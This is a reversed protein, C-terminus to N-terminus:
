LWIACILYLAYYGTNSVTYYYLVNEAETVYKHELASFNSNNDVSCGYVLWQLPDGM